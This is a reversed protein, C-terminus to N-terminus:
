PSEVGPDLRARERTAAESAARAQERRAVAQDRQARAAALTAEAEARARRREILALTAEAIHEARIAAPEDGRARDSEARELAAGAARALDQETEAIAGLADLRARLATVDARAVTGGLSLAALVLLAVFTRALM